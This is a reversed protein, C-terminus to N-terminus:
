KLVRFFTYDFTVTCTIYEDDSSTTLFTLGSVSVPHLDIFEFTRIVNNSPSLVLLTADSYHDLHSFKTTLEPPLIENFTSGMIWKYMALYNTLDADVMFELNFSDFTPTDGVLPVNVKPTNMVASPLSIGPLEVSQSFYLLEPAKQLTFQFGNSSLPNVVNQTPTIASGM